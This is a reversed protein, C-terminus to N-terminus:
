TLYTASTTPTFTGVVNGDVLVQFDNVGDQGNRFASQFSVAYTGASAFAISQSISGTTQIFAVQTGDPANANNFASGNSALGSRTSFTGHGAAPNSQVAGPAPAPVEFSSNPGPGAPAALRLTGGAVATTGTHANSSSSLILTGPGKKLLSGTGTTSS